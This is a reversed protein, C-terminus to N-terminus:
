KIQLAHRTAGAKFQFDDTIGVAPDVVRIWELKPLKARVIRAALGYQGGFSVVAARESDSPQAVRAASVYTM